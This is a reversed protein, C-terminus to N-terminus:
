LMWSSVIRALSHNVSLFSVTIILLLVGHAIHHPHKKRVEIAISAGITATLAVAILTFVYNLTNAPNLLFRELLSVSARGTNTGPTSDSAPTAETNRAVIFSDDEQVIQLSSSAQPTSTAQDEDSADEAVATPEPTSEPSRAGQVASQSQTEESRPEEQEPATVTDTDSVQDQGADTDAVALTGTAAPAGFMQVVFTTEEGNLTGKHVAIGIERFQGGLINERHAPSNMWARSVPRSNSFDVALNEGAYVFRYGAEQMWHWPATGDPAHHAFYGYKDMHEAKLKAARALRTNQRLPSVGHEERNENALDVLVSPYITAIIGSRIVAVTSVVSAAMLLVLLALVAAAPKPNLVRPTHNNGAHPFVLDRLSRWFKM